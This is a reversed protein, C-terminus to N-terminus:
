ERARVRWLSAALAASLVSAGIWFAIPAAFDYHRVGDVVVTGREILFGSVLEQLGAGLYSFMGVVGMAAGAARKDAIDVAFLGGLVALIGSLTFGYLVFGFALVAPVSVTEDGIAFSVEPGAPAFFVIALGVIELLGFILTVPPRRAHFCRDSVFGYVMCGFIGAITNIGILGSAEVLSFGHAEQLYLVGWNNIAYRTVYMLASSLGVVWIAPMKLLELQARGASTAPAEEREIPQDEGGEWERVPPLGLTEPRDRLGVYMAAAVALCILGPGWFAANWVTLTVLTATGFYTLGEGISHATSWLGYM